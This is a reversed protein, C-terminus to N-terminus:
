KLFELVFDVSQAIAKREFETYTMPAKTNAEDSIFRLIIFPVGNKKAIQAISAGEMECCSAQFEKRM